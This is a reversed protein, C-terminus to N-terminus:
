EQTSPDTVTVRVGRHAHRNPGPTVRDRSLHVIENDDHRRVHGAEGIIFGWGVAGM